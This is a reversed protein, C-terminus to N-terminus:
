LKCKNHLYFSSKAFVTKTIGAVDIANSIVNSASANANALPM